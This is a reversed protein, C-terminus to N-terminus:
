ITKDILEGGEYIDIEEASMTEIRIPFAVIFGNKGRQYNVPTNIWTGGLQDILSVSEIYGETEDQDIKVYKRLVGDRYRTKYIPLKHSEGDVVAVAHDIEGDIFSLLRDTAYETYEQM